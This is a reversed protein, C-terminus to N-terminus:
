EVNSQGGNEKRETEPASEIKIRIVDESLDIGEEVLTQQEALQRKEEHRGIFYLVALLIGTAFLVAFGILIIIWNTTEQGLAGYSILGLGGLVTVIVLTKFINILIKM